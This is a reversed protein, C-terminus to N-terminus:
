GTRTLPSAASYHPSHARVLMLLAVTETFTPISQKPEKKTRLQEMGDSGFWNKDKILGATVPDHAAQRLYSLM